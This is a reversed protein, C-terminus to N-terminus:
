GAKIHTAADEPPEEGLTEVSVRVTHSGIRYITQYRIGNQALDGALRQRMEEVAEDTRITVPDDPNVTGTGPGGKRAEQRPRRDGPRPRGRTM